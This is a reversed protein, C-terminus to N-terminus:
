KVFVAKIRDFVGPAATPEAEIPEKNADAVNATLAVDEAAIVKGVERMVLAPLEPLDKSIVLMIPEHGELSIRARNERFNCALQIVEAEAEVLTARQVRAQKLGVKM